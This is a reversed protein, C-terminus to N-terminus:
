KYDICDILGRSCGVKGSKSLSLQHKDQKRKKKEERAPLQCAAFFLVILSNKKQKFDNELVFVFIADVIFAACNTQIRFICVLIQLILLRAILKYRYIRIYSNSYGDNYRRIYRCVYSPFLSTYVYVYICKYTHTHKYRHM